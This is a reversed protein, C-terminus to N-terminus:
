SVRRMARDRPSLQAEQISLTQMLIAFKAPHLKNPGGRVDIIVQRRASNLVSLINISKKQNKKHIELPIKSRLRKKWRM